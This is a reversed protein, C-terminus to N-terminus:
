TCARAAKHETLFADMVDILTQRRGSLLQEFEQIRTLMQLDAAGRENVGILCGLSNGLAEAIASVSKVSPKPESIKFEGSDAPFSGADPPGGAQKLTIRSRIARLRTALNPSM